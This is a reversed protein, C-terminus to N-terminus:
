NVNYKLIPLNSSIQHPKSYTTMCLFNNGIYVLITSDFIFNFSFRFRNSWKFILILAQLNPFKSENIVNLVIPKTWNQFWKKFVIKLIQRYQEQAILPLVFFIKEQCFYRFIPRLIGLFTLQTHM